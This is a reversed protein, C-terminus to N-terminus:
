VGVQQYSPFASQYEEEEIERESRTEGHTKEKKDRVFLSAEEEERERRREEQEKWAKVLLDLIRTLTTCLDPTPQGTQLAHAKILLLASGILRGAVL